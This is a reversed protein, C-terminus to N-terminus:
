EQGLKKGVELQNGRLFPGSDMPKKGALVLRHIRLDRVATAISLFEGSADLITGPPAGSQFEGVSAKLVTLRMSGKEAPYFTYAGPWPTMARIHRRIAEGPQSWDILGQDKKLSRAITVQSEDQAEFKIQGAELKDLFEVFLDAGMVSLRDHLEGATEDPGIPTTVKIGMDGADMKEVMRFITLGTESEGNWIAYAIPAAGRYKPLNSGHLNFPGIRPVALLDNSLKQGYAAVALVDPEHQRLHEISERASVKVPQFVPIGLILAAEKVPPHTIKKGRGSQRDPQCIVLTVEHSSEAIAKLSPVAFDPTGIFIIRLSL